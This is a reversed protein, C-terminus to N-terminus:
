PCRYRGEFACFLSFCIMGVGIAALLYPGFPQQAVAVLSEALGGKEDPDKTLMASIFFGGVILYVVGRAAFGLRGVISSAEREKVSMQEVDFKDMFDDKIAHKFQVFAFIIIILGIVGFLYLGWQNGMILESVSGNNSRSSSSESYNWIKFATYCVSTYILASIFYFVRMLIEKKKDDDSNGPNLFSQILRWIVYSILGLILLGLLINGFSSDQLTKFVTKKSINEANGSGLGAWIILSGLVSYVIAKAWYGTRAIALMKNDHQNSM